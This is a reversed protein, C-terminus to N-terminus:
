LIGNTLYQFDDYKMTRWNALSAAVLEDIFLLCKEDTLNLQLRNKFGDLAVQFDALCPLNSNEGIAELIMVLANAHKRVELFGQFLLMKFYQFMEGQSGDMVEAMESTLKFPASEFGMRGPSTTLFFGFDIHIIHGASDILINANHRDKLNLLYCVLSYGAMSQVFNRQAEEFSPGWNRKYFDALTSFDPFNKKIGHISLTDPIFEIIGMYDSIVRIEYTRLYLSLQAQEWIKRIKTILQMALFEQRLDDLGKVIIGRLKWSSYKGFNSSEKVKNALTGWSEGWIDKSEQNGLKNRPTAIEDHEKEVKEVYESYGEFRVEKQAIKQLSLVDVGSLDDFVEEDISHASVTESAIEEEQIEITEFVM